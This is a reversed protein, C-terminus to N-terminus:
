INNLIEFAQQITESSDAISFVGTLSFFKKKISDAGTIVVDGQHDQALVLSEILVTIGLSNIVNCRSFDFVMKTKGSKCLSDVEGVLGDLTQENCYNVFEIMPYEKNLLVSFAKEAM